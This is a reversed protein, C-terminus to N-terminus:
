QLFVNFVRQHEIGKDRYIAFVRRTAEDKVLRITEGDRSELSIEKAKEGDVAVITEKREGSPVEQGWEYRWIYVGLAVVIVIGLGTKWFEKM